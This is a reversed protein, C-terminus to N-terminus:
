NKASILSCNEKYINNNQKTTLSFLHFCTIYYMDSLILLIYSKYHEQPIGYLLAMRIYVHPGFFNDYFYM